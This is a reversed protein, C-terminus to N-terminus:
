TCVKQDIVTLKDVKGSAHAQPAASCAALAFVALLPLLWRM